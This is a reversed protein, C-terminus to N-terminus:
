GHTVDGDTSDAVGPDVLRNTSAVTSYWEASAKPIRELTDYDVRVLGFRHTYGFAWEFNDLLSWAFYGDIPVGEGILRHVEAIHDRLYAVRDRDDVYGGADPEDDMAAGNETILFRAFDFREHLWRMIEGLGTPYIEWGMATVPTRAPVEDDGDAVLSRTYYNVGLVDLPAAIIALDGDHIEAGSWKVDGTDDIPYGAGAIPEVFWRNFLAHEAEAAAVDASDPSAPHMPSFNLVIGVEADPVRDRIREVALGHGLLLHHAAAFAAARDRRGPAMFGNGYGFYSACYPENLTAWHKVRDGLHIAVVDAYEAFHYATAREPWGGNDELTQPLDWHYLTVYPEIGVALLGDVLRDYFDLGAPSAEGRGDPIVRPWAISFRYAGLGLRSMLQVDPGSHELHGCAVDGNSGDVIAGPLECFTDWIGDGRGSRGGEIQFSSTAAGWVFGTPFSLDPTVVTTLATANSRRIDGGLHESDDDTTM